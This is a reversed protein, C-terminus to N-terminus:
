KANESKDKAAKWDNFVKQNIQIAQRMWKYDPSNNYDNDLRYAGVGGKYGEKPMLAAQKLLVGGSVSSSEFNDTIIIKRPDGGPGYFGPNSSGYAQIIFYDVYDAVEDPFIGLEGDICFMKHGKNEPDSKPGIYKGLEKVFYVITGNGLTGDM